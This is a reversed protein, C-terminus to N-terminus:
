TIYMKKSEYRCECHVQNPPHVCAKALYSRYRTLFRTVMMCAPMQLHFQETVQYGHIMPRSIDFSIYWSGTISRTYYKISFFIPQTVMCQSYQGCVHIRASWSTSDYNMETALNADLSLSKATRLRRGDASSTFCLGRSDVLPSCAITGCM